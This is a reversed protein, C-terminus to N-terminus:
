KVLVKATNAGNRIVYIGPTVNEAAIKVGQLNYIEFEGSVGDAAISEIATLKYDSFKVTLNYDGQINTTMYIYCPTGDALAYPGDEPYELSDTVDNEEEGQTEVLALIEEEADPAMYFYIETASSISAGDTLESGSPVYYYNGDEDEFEESEEMGTYAYVTGNGEITYSFSMQKEGFEIVIVTAENVTVTAVSGEIAVREGNATIAILAKGTAPTATVTVETGPAVVSGSAITQGNASLVAKGEDVISYSVNYGFHAVFDAAEEGNYTYSTASTLFEGDAYTWNIFEAGEGATAEITVKKQTTEVSNGETAPDTIAVTGLENDAAVTIVRANEYDPSPYDLVFDLIVEGNDSSAQGFQCPSVGEWDMMYRVRYSGYPLDAPVNFSYTGAFTHNKGDKNTYVLDDNTLGNFDFDVFIFTNMWEGAGAATINVTEGPAITLVNATRDAYVARTGTTGQGEVTISNEGCSVALSTLGRGSYASNLGMERGEVPVPECYDVGERYEATFTVDSTVTYTDSTLVEGNAKIALATYGRTPAAAVHVETMEYVEAGSALAEGNMTVAVSGGENPEITVTYVAKAVADITLTDDGSLVITYVGDVAEIAEEGLLVGHLIKSEPVTLTLEYEVGGLLSNLDAVAEGRRTLTYEIDEPNVVNLAYIENTFVASLTVDGTVMYTNGIVEREEGNVAYIDYLAYGEAAEAEITLESGIEVQSSAELAVGDKKVTLTGNEVNEDVTVTVNPDLEERDSTALTATTSENTGNKIGGGDTTILSSNGLIAAWGTKKNCLQFDAQATVDNGLTNNFKGKSGSAIEDFTYLSKLSGFLRPNIMAVKVDKASLAANFLQVEDIKCTTRYGGAQFYGNNAAIYMPASLESEKVLKDNFYVCAKLNTNDVVVVLYVWEGVPFATDIAGAFGCGGAGHDSAGKGVVEATGDSLTTIGWNGTYDLQTLNSFSAISGGKTAYSADYGCAEVKIWMAFTYNETGNMASSSNGLAAYPIVLRYDTPGSTPYSSPMTKQLVKNEAFSCVPMLIAVLLLLLIKRM